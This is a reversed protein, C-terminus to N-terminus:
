PAPPADTQPALPGALIPPIPCDLASAMARLLEAEAVTATGDAAVALVAATLLRKKIAPSAQSLKELAESLVALACQDSPLLQLQLQTQGAQLAATAQDFALQAQPGIHQGAHVLASLLAAADPLIGAIAHYRVAAPPQARFHRDLHGFLVRLLVFEWLTTERDAEVLQQVSARFQKYQAPSLGRLTGLM